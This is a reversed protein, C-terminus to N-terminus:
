GTMGKYGTEVRGDEHVIVPVVDAYRRAEDLWDQNGDVQREEFQMGRSSWDKKLSNCTPCTKLTYVIPKGM